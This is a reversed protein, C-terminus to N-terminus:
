EWRRLALVTMNDEQYIATSAGNTRVAMIRVRDNAAFTQTIGADCTDSDGTGRIYGTGRSGTIETWSIGDYIELYCECTGRGSSSTDNMVAKYYCWYTGANKITIENGSVTFDGTGTTHVSTNVVLEKATAGIATTNSANNRYCIYPVDYAGTKATNAMVDSNNSVETDFDSITSATQTGTHNGRALLYADSQNATANSDINDLKIGDASPNRSNITNVVLSYIYGGAYYSALSGLDYTNNTDPIIDGDIDITSVSQTGTHNARSRDASHYHLTSDGADTLDTANVDSINNVEAGTEIGDLKTWNAATLLGAVSGTAAPITANTGTDSDVDVTTATTTGISLNTSGAGGGIIIVATGTDDIYYCKDTDTAIFLRGALAESSISTIESETAYEIDRFARRITM